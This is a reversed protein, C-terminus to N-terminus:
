ISGFRRRYAEKDHQGARWASIIRRNQRRWTYVVVFFTGDQDHGLVIYRDEGYDRRLDQKELTPNKFIQVAQTFRVSHKELNAREKAANWEYGM